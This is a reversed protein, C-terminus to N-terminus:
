SAAEARKRQRRSGTVVDASRQQLHATGAPRIWDADRDWPPSKGKVPKATLHWGDCVDCPYVRVPLRSPMGKKTAKEHIRSMALRATAQDAYFAKDCTGM